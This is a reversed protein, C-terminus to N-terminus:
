PGFLTSLTRTEWQRRLRAYSARARDDHRGSVRMHLEGSADREWAWRTEISLARDDAVM